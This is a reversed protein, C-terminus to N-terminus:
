SLHLLGSEAVSGNIVESNFAISIRDQNSLNPRVNHVLWSPFILLMGAQPDVYRTSSNFDNYSEVIDLKTNIVHSHASIPTTFLISGCNKEAKVYYVASFFSGPHDHPDSTNKCDNINVWAETIKQYSSKKFGFSKHLSNMKESVINMLPLIDNTVKSTNNDLIISQNTVKSPNDKLQTRCYNEIISNDLNLYDFALFNSFLKEIQM